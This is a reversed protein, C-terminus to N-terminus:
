IKNREITYFVCFIDEKETSSFPCRKTERIIDGYMESPIFGTDPILDDIILYPYEDEPLDDRWGINKCYAEGGRGHNTFKHKDYKKGTVESLYHGPIEDM